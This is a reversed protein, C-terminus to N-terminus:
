PYLIGKRTQKLMDLHMKALLVYRIQKEQIIWFEDVSIAVM